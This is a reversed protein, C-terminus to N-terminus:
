NFTFDYIVVINIKNCKHVILYDDKMIIFRIENDNGKDYVNIFFIFLVIIMFMVLLLGINIM